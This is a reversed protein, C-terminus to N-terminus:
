NSAAGSFLRRSLWSHRAEEFRETDRIRLARTVHKYSANCCTCAISPQKSNGRGDVVSPTALRRSSVSPTWRQSAQQLLIPLREDIRGSAIDDRGAAYTTLRPNDLVAQILDPDAEDSAVIATHRDALELVQNPGKM